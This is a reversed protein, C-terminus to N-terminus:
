LRNAAIKALALAQSAPPSGAAHIVVTVVVLADGKNFYIGATGPAAIELARDALGSLATAHQLRSNHSMLDYGARGRTPTLNVLVFKTQYSGYQCQSSGHSTFASGHGPDTGLATSIEAETVLDCARVAAVPASTTRAVPTSHHAAAPRTTTTPTTTPTTPPTTGSSGCGALLLAAACFAAPSAIAAVARKRPNTM